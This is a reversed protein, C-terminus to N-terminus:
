FGLLTLIVFGLVLSSINALFTYKIITSVKKTNDKELRNILFIYILFEVVFILIEIIIYAPIIAMLNFGYKYIISSLTVNLVIQTLVNTAAILILQKNKFKFALAIVLEILLCIFLRVIFGLIVRFTYNNSQKVIFPNTSFSDENLTLTLETAFKTREYIENNTIFQDKISDYILIKFVKPPYYGWKYAGDKIDAYNYLYYFNDSDVYSAFKLDINDINGQHEPDSSHPGSYESKSLLTMYYGDCKGEIKIRVYPKPGTDANILVSSLSITLLVVFIAILMKLIKKMNVVGNISIIGYLIYIYVLILFLCM